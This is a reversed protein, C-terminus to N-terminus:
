DGSSLPCIPRENGGAIVRYAKDLDERLLPSEDGKCPHLHPSFWVEKNVWPHIKGAERARRKWVTRYLDFHHAVLSGYPPGDDDDSRNEILIDICTKDDCPAGRLQVDTPASRFPPLGRFNLVLSDKGSDWPEVEIEVLAIESAVRSSGNLGDLGYIKKHGEVFRCNQLSGHELMVLSVNNCAPLLGWDRCCWHRGRERGLTRSVGAIWRYDKACELDGAPPACLADPDCESVFPEFPDLERRPEFAFAVRLNSLDVEEKQSCRGESDACYHLRPHHGAVGYRDQADVLLALWDDDGTPTFAVLGVFFIRVVLM